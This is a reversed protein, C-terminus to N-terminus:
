VSIVGMSVRGTVGSTQRMSVSVCEGKKTELFIDQTNDTRKVRDIEDNERLVIAQLGNECKMGEPSTKKVM